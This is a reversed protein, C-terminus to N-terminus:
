RRRREPAVGIREERSRTPRTEPTVMAHAVAGTGAQPRGGAGAGQGQAHAAFLGGGGQNGARAAAPSSARGFGGGRGAAQHGLISDDLDMTSEDQGDFGGLGTIEEDSSDEYADEAYRPEDDSSTAEWNNTPHAHTYGQHQHSDPHSHSPQPASPSPRYSSHFNQPLHTNLDHPMGHRASVEAQLRLDEYAAVDEATITLTTPARRLM